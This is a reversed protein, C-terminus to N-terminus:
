FRFRLNSNRRDCRGCRCCRASRRRTSSRTSRRRLQGHQAPQDGTVQITLARNSKMRIDRSFQGNLLRSGPGIILNRPANGFTGPSRCSFAGTNFFDRSRRITSRSRIATTTRACRATPAARCTAPSTPSARRLRRARSGPSRERLRALRRAGGRGDATTCGSSTPVSRCSSRCIPTSRIAGISARSRISPRSTRTTRRSSRGGGGITSANDM